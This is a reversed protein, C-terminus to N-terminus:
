FTRVIIAAEDGRLPDFDSKARIVLVHTRKLTVIKKKKKKKIRKKKSLKKRNPEVSVTVEVPEDGEVLSTTRLTGTLMQATVNGTEGFYSVAFFTSGGTGSLILEDPLTGGNRFTAVGFVSV